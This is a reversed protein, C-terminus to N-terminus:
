ALTKDARLVADLLVQTGATCDAQTASEAPNHSVGDKCPVFIMSTPAVKSVYVSDHGAGSVIERAPLGLDRAAERVAAICDKHFSVPPSVWVPILEPAFASETALLARLAAEMAELGTEDVHRLDLSFTVRGPIVNRSPETIAIEGVAAYGGRAVALDPLAVIIRAAAMMADQRMTMPTSGAHAARGTLTIDYWRAGQVGTVIGITKEERELVPGQEIHLEFMAAMRTAGVALDGRAGISDLAQAFTVGDRDKRSLAHDISFVGAHVGSCLMAPAFRAGEENTWNVLLLPHETEVGLDHLTRLVELGGLVGLIGDYKGGTPQTDLHSGMAIPALDPNRGERRIFMSGLQDIEVRCGLATVQDTLWARVQADEASLTLRRVGGDATGGFGATEMISSWLRDGDIKINSVSM